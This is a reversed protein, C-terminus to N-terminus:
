TNGSIARSCTENICLSFTRECSVAICTEGGAEKCLAAAREVAAKAGAIVVQGPSNFNVASVVEGEEAQKCLM